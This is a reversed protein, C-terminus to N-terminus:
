EGDKESKEEEFPEESADAAPKAADQSPKVEEEAPATEGEALEPKADTQYIAQKDFKIYSYNGESGTRLVFTGEEDDVEVVEGIVGGRTVVKNGPRVANIVDNYYKQKKRQSLFAWVLYAVLLAVIIIIPVWQMWGGSTTEAAEELLNYFNM